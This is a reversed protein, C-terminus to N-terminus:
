LKILKLQGQVNGNRVRVYYTGGKFNTVNLDVNINNNKAYLITRTYLVHGVADVIDVQYSGDPINKFDLKSVGTNTPNPFLVLQSSINNPATVTIDFDPQIFGTLLAQGAAQNVLFSATPEGINYALIINGATATGGGSSVVTRNLTQGLAFNCCFIAPLLLLLNSLARSM